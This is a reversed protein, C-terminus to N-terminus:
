LRRSSHTDNAVEDPDDIRLLERTVNEYWFEYYVANMWEYSVESWKQKTCDANGAQDAEARVVVLTQHDKAFDNSLTVSGVKNPRNCLHIDLCSSRTGCASTWTVGETETLIMGAGNIVREYLLDVFWKYPWGKKTSGLQPWRLTDLNLDGLLHVEINNTNIFNQVMETFIDWRARQKENTRTRDPDELRKWERYAGIVVYRSAGTGFELWLSCIGKVECDKRRRYPVTSKVAAWIRENPGLEEVCFGHINELRDRTKIDLRNECMYFVHPRISDLM